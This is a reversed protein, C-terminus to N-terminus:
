FRESEGQEVQQNMAFNYFRVFHSKAVDDLAIARRLNEDAEDFRKLDSLCLAAKRNTELTSNLEHLRLSPASRVEVVQGLDNPDRADDASHLSPITSCGSRAGRSCSVQGCHALHVHRLPVSLQLRPPLEACRLCVTLESRSRAVSSGCVKGQAVRTFVYCLTGKDKIVLVALMVLQALFACPSSATTAASVNDAM